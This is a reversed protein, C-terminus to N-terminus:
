QYALRMYCYAYHLPRAETRGDTQGTKYRVKISRAACVWHSEGSPLVALTCEGGFIVLVFMSTLTTESMCYLQFTQFHTISLYINNNANIPECFFITNNWQQIKRFKKVNYIEIDARQCFTSVYIVHLQNELVDSLFCECSKEGSTPIHKLTQAM